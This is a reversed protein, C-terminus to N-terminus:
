SFAKLCSTRANASATTAGSASAISSSKMQNFEESTPPGSKYGMVGCRLTSHGVLPAVNVAIGKSELEDYFQTLTGWKWDQPTLINKYLNGLGVMYQM